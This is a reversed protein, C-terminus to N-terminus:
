ATWWSGLWLNFDTEQFWDSIGIYKLVGGLFMMSASLTGTFRIGSKDLIIGALILFGCVNLIYEASAYTGFVSPSWGRDHEVLSQLPSLVEVFMYGFFMMLAILILATWRAAKSDNLYQKLTEAM